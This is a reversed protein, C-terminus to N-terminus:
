DIRVPIGNEALFKRAEQPTNETYLFMSAAAVADAGSRIADFMHSYEGCGGNAILPVDVVSRLRQITAYDYGGLMGDHDISTMIIEGVGALQLQIAREDPAIFQRVKGCSSICLLKKTEPDFQYDIGGVICQAGFIDVADSILKPADYSATNIVVKDAGSRLVGRISEITNIGGAFTIPVNCKETLESLLDLDNSTRVESAALDILLLEDVDRMSHVNVAPLLTGAQRWNNFREGKVLTYERFLLSPIVRKKLM